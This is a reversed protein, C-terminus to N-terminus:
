IYKKEVLIDDASLKHGRIEPLLQRNKVNNIENKMKQHEFLYIAIFYDTESQSNLKLFYFHLIRNTGIYINQDYYNIRDM